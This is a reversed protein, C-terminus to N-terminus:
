NGRSLILTIMTIDPLSALPRLSPIGSWKIFIECQQCRKRESNYRGLTKHHICIGKCIM